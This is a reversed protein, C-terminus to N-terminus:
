FLYYNEFENVWEVLTVDTNIDLSDIGLEKYKPQPICDNFIENMQAYRKNNDTFGGNIKRWKLVLKVYAISDVNMANINTRILEYCIKYNENKWTTISDKLNGYFEEKGYHVLSVLIVQKDQFTCYQPNVDVDRIARIAKFGQCGACLSITIALVIVQKIIGKTNRM